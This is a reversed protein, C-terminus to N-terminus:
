AAEKESNSVYILALLYDTTVWNISVARINDPDDNGDLIPKAWRQHTTTTKSYKVQNGFWQKAVADYVYLPFSSWGHTGLSLVAYLNHYQESYVSGSKTKFADRRQVYPRIEDNSLNTKM